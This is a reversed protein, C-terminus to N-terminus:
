KFFKKIINYAQKILFCGIIASGVYGFDSVVAEFIQKSYSFLYQATQSM